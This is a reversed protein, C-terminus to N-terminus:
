VAVACILALGAMLIEACWSTMSLSMCTLPAPPPCCLFALCGRSSVCVLSTILFSASLPTLSTQLDRLASLIKRSAGTSFQMFTHSTSSACRMSGFHSSASDAVAHNEPLPAITRCSTSCPGSDRGNARDSLTTCQMSCVRYTVCGLKQPVVRAEYSLEVIPRGLCTTGPIQFTSLNHQTAVSPDRILCSM